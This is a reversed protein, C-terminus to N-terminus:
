QNKNMEKELADYSAMGSFNSIDYFKHEIVSNVDIPNLIGADFAEKIVDPISYAMYRDLTTNKPYVKNEFRQLFFILENDEPKLKAKLSELDNVSESAYFSYKLEGIQRTCYSINKLNALSFPVCNNKASFADTSSPDVYDIDGNELIKTSQTKDTDNDDEKEEEVKVTNKNFAPRYYIPHDDETIKQNKEYKNDTKLPACENSMGFLNSSAYYRESLSFFPDFGEEKVSQLYHESCDKGNYKEIAFVHEGDASYLTWNGSRFGNKYYYEAVLKGDRFLEFNETEAELKMKVEFTSNNYNDKKDYFFLAKGNEFQGLALTDGKTGLEFYKGNLKGDKVIFSKRLKGNDNFVYCQGDAKGALASGKYQIIGKRYTEYNGSLLGNKLTYKEKTFGRFDYSEYLGEPKGDRISANLKVDGWPFYQQFVGEQVDNKFEQKNMVAGNSYYNTFVGNKINQTYNGEFKKNGNEYYWIVKGEFEFPEKKTHSNAEFQKVNTNAYYDKITFLNNQKSIERYFVADKAKTEKWEADFYIKEQALLSFPIFLFLFINKM